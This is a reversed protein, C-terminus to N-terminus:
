LASSPVTMFQGRYRRWTQQMLEFLVDPFFYAIQIGHKSKDEPFTFNAQHTMLVPVQDPEEFRAAQLMRQRNVRLLEVIETDQLM